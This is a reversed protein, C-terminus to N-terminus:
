MAAISPSTSDGTSTTSGFSGAIGVHVDVWPLRRSARCTSGTDRPPLPAATAQISRHLKELRKPGSPWGRGDALDEEIPLPNSKFWRGESELPDFGPETFRGRVEVLTLDAFAPATRAALRRAAQVLAPDAPQRQYGLAVERV